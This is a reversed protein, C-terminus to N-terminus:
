RLRVKKLNNIKFLKSSSKEHLGHKNEIIIDAKSECFSREFNQSSQNASTSYVWEFNRLIQSNSPLKAIRVAKNKIIFTTKSSRRFEKKFKQPVRKNKLFTSFNAYTQLFEKTKPRSKADSLKESNRSIFGVTTDTQTLIILNELSSFRAPSQSEVM